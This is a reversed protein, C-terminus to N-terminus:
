NRSLPQQKTKSDDEECTGTSTCENQKTTVDNQEILNSRIQFKAHLQPTEQNKVSEGRKGLNEQDQRSSERINFEVTDGVWKHSDTFNITM